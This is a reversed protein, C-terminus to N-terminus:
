SIPDCRFVYSISLNHYFFVNVFLYESFQFIVEPIQDNIELNDICFMNLYSTAYLATRLNM